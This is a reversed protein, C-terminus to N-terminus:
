QNKMKTALMAKCPEIVENGFTVNPLIKQGQTIPLVCNAVLGKGVTNGGKYYGASMCAKAIPQCPNAAWVPLNVGMLVSLVVIYKKM